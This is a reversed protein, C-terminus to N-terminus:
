STRPSGSKSLALVPYLNVNIIAFLASGFWNAEESALLDSRCQKCLCPIDPNLLVLTLWLVHVLINKSFYMYQFVLLNLTDHVLDTALCSLEGSSARTLWIFFLSTRFVKIYFKLMFIRLRHGQCSRPHHPHHQVFNKVLICQIYDYWLHILDTILNPLLSTKFVKVFVNVNTSASPLVIVRQSHQELLSFCILNPM